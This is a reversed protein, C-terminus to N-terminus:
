ESSDYRPIEALDPRVIPEHPEVYHAQMQTARDVVGLLMEDLTSMAWRTVLDDPIAGGIVSRVHYVLLTGDGAPSMIWGGDNLPTWLADPDAMTALQPADLTWTREWVRGETLAYLPQNNGIAIVWQRDEFPWPLDIHQYLIKRGPRTGACWAETLGDVLKFHTDDLISMWLADPTSGRAWIAGVARDAGELRERKRIVKGQELHTLEKADLKVKFLGAQEIAVSTARWSEDLTAQGM